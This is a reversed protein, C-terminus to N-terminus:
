LKSLIKKIKTKMTLTKKRMVRLVKMTTIRIKYINSNYHQNSKIQM